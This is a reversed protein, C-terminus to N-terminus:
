ALSDSGNKDNIVCEIKLFGQEACVSGLGLLIDGYKVRVIEGDRFSGKLRLLDLEGGNAFRVAQKETVSVQSLGLLATDAPKIFSRVNEETLEDLSVTDALPFGATETRLLETMVAGCGLKEGIDRCLSRIYTGKSCRVHLTFDRGDFDEASIGEIVIERPEREVTKGERALQYLRVGDRSIASYM